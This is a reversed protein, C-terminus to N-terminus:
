LCGAPYGEPRGAQGVSQRVAKLVSPVGHVLKPSESKVLTTQYHLAFSALILLSFSRALLACPSALLLLFPVAVVDYLM